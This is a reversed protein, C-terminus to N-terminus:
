KHRCIAIVKAFKGQWEGYWWCVSDRKNPLYEGNSAQWRCNDIWLATHDVISKITEPPTNATITPNNGNTDFFLIDGNQVGAKSPSSADIVNFCNYKEPHKVAYYYQDESNGYPYEPDFNSARMATAVYHDCSMGWNCDFNARKLYNVYNIVNSDSTYNSCNLDIQKQAAFSKATTIFANLNASTDINDINYNINNYDPTNYQINPDPLVLGQPNLIDPNIIHLIIWMLFLLAIGIIVNTIRNQAEKQKSSNGGSLAYEFGSYIIVLFGIFGALPFLKYKIFSNLWPLFQTSPVCQCQQFLFPIGTEFQYSGKPCTNPCPSTAFLFLPIILILFALILLKKIKLIKNM